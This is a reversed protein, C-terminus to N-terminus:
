QAVTGTKSLDKAAKTSLSSDAPKASPTATNGTEMNKDQPDKIADNLSNDDLKATPDATKGGMTGPHEAEAKTSLSSDEAAGAFGASAVLLAAAIISKYM